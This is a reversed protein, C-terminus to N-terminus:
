SVMVICPFESAVCNGIKPLLPIPQKFQLIFIWPFILFGVKVNTFCVMAGPSIENSTTYGTSQIAPSAM